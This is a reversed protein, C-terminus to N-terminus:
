IERDFNQKLANFIEHFIVPLGFKSSLKGDFRCSINQLLFKQSKKFVPLM